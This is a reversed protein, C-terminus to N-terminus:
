TDRKKSETRSSIQFKMIHNNVELVNLPTVSRSEEFPDPSPQKGVPTKFFQSSISEHM